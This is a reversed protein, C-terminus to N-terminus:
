VASRLSRVAPQATTIHQILRQWNQPSGPIFRGLLCETEAGTLHPLNGPIQNVTLSVLVAIAVADLTNPLIKLKDLTTWEGYRLEKQLQKVLISHRSGGGAILIETDNLIPGFQQRISRAIHESMSQAITYLVDRLSWAKKKAQELIASVQKAAFLCAFPSWHSRTSPVDFLAIRELIESLEPLRTGQVALRGAEDFTQEGDTLHQVIPDILGGCVGASGYGIQMKNSHSSNPLFTMRVEQGLDLLLRHKDPSHLIAWYSLPLFPGGQGGTSLDMASFADLINHGTRAALTITDCLTEQFLPSIKQISQIYEDSFGNADQSQSNTKRFSVNPLDNDHFTDVCWVGPDHVGVALLESPTVGVIHLLERITEEQIELLRRRASPSLRPLVTKTPIEFLSLDADTGYHSLGNDSGKNRTVVDTNEPFLDEQYAARIERPLDITLGHGIEVPSGMRTGHIGVLAAELRRCCSTVSLGIYWQIPQKISRSNNLLSSLM